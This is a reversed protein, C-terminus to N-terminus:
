RTPHVFAGGARHVEKQARVAPGDVIMALTPVLEEAHARLSTHSSRRPAASRPMPPSPRRRFLVASSGGVMRWSGVASFREDIASGSPLDQSSM